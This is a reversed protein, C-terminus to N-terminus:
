AKHISIKAACAHDDILTTNEVSAASRSHFHGRKRFKFHAKGMIPLIKMIIDKLDSLVQLSARLPFLRPVLNAPVKFIWEIKKEYMHAHVQEKWKYM